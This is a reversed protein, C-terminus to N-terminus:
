IAHGGSHPRGIAGGASRKGSNLRSRRGAPTCEMLEGNLGYRTMAAPEAELATDSQEHFRGGHAM